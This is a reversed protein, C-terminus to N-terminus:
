NLTSLLYSFKCSPFNMGKQSLIRIQRMHIIIINLNMETLYLVKFRIEQKFHAVLTFRYALYVGM